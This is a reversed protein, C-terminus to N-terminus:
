SGGGYGAILAAMVDDIDPAVFVSWERGPSFLKARRYLVSDDPKAVPEAYEDIGAPAYAIKPARISDCGADVTVRRADWPGGIFLCEAKSADSV